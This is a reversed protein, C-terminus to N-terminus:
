RMQREKQKKIAKKQEEVRKDRQKRRTIVESLAVSSSSEENMGADENVEDEEGEGSLLDQLDDEDLSPENEQETAEKVSEENEDWNMQPRQPPEYSEDQDMDVDPDAM